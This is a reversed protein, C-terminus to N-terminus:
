LGPIIPSNYVEALYNQLGARHHEIFTYHVTHEKTFYLTCPIYGIYYNPQPGSIAGAPSLQLAITRELSQM